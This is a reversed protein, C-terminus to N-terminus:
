RGYLEPLQYRIGEDCKAEEIHIKSSMEIKRVPLESIGLTGHSSRVLTIKCYGTKRPTAVM